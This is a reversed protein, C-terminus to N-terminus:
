NPRSLFWRRLARVDVKSQPTPRSEPQRAQPVNLVLSAATPVSLIHLYRLRVGKAPREYHQRTPIQEAYTRRIYSMVDGARHLSIGFAIALEERCFPRGLRWGWHAVALYLPLVGLNTLGDPLTFAEYNSQRPAVVAGMRSMAKNGQTM